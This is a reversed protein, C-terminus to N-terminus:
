VAPFIRSSIFGLSVEAYEAFILSQHMPVANGEWTGFHVEEGTEIDIAAGPIVPYRTTDTHGLLVAKESIELTIHSKLNLPATYYIGEPFYLRSGEPLCNIATQISITDDKVGDGAAGFDKVNVACTETLTKFSLTECGSVELSYETGPRLGFLSFVNTDAKLVEENNLKVTYEEGSYYPNNNELEFCASVTGAYLTKIM